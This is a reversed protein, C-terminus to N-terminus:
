DQGRSWEKNQRRGWWLMTGKSGGKCFWKCTGLFDCQHVDVDKGNHMPKDGRSAIGENKKGRIAWQEINIINIHSWTIPTKIRLDKNSM